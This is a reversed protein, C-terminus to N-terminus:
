CFIIKSPNKLFEQSEKLVDGAQHRSSSCVSSGLRDLIPEQCLVQTLKTELRQGPWSVSKKPQHPLESGGHCPPDQLENKACSLPPKLPAALISCEPPGFGPLSFLSCVWLPFPTTKIERQSIQMCNARARGTNAEANCERSSGAAKGARSGALPQNCPCEGRPPAPRPTQPERPIGKGSGAAWGSGGWGM